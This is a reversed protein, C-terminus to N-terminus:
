ATIQEKNATFVNSFFAGFFSAIGVAAFLDIDAVIKNVVFYALCGVVAGILGCIVSNTWNGMIGEIGTGYVAAVTDSGGYPLRIVFKNDFSGAVPGIFVIWRLYINKTRDRALVPHFRGPM